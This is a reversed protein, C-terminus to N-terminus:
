DYKFEKINNANLLLQILDDDSSFNPYLDIEGKDLMNNLIKRLEIEKQKLEEATM